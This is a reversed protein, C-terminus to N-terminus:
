NENQKKRKTIIFGDESRTINYHKHLNRIRETQGYDDFFIIERWMNITPFDIQEIGYGERFTTSPTPKKVTQKKNKNFYSFLISFINKM